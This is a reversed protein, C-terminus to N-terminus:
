KKVKKKKLRLVTKQKVQKCKGIELLQEKSLDGNYIAKELEDFDVHEVRKIFPCEMSGKGAWIVSKIIELLRDENMTEEESVTCTVTYDGSECDELNYKTMIEKIDNNLKDILKKEVDYVDKKEGYESVYKELTEKEKKTIKKTAM